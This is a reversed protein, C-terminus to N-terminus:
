VKGQFIAIPSAAANYNVYTVTIIKQLYFGGSEPSGLQLKRLLNLM